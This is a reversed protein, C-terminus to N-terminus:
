ATATKQSLQTRCTAEIEDMEQLAADIDERQQQLARRNEQIRAIMVKLQETAGGATGYMDLIHRIEELSFGLRKGRLVLTLRTYDRHDYIRNRGQRDPHLLNKDEYFRLARTTIGFEKALQSITYTRNM